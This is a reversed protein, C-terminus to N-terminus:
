QGLLSVRLHDAAGKVKQVDERGLIEGADAVMRSCDIPLTDERATRKAKREASPDVGAAVLGRAAERRERALKLPVEKHTGLSLMKQRGQFRYKFRWGRSGNTAVLLFLGDGDFFKQPKESPRTNRVQVDTLPM